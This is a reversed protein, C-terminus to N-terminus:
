KVRKMRMIAGNLLYASLKNLKTKSPVLRVLFKYRNAQNISMIAWVPLSAHKHGRAQNIHGQKVLRKCVKDSQDSLIVLMRILVNRLGFPVQPQITVVSRAHSNNERGLSISTIGLAQMLKTFRQKALSM